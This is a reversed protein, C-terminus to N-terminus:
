ALGGEGVYEALYKWVSSLNEVGIVKALFEVLDGDYVAIQVTIPGSTNVKDAYSFYEILHFGM